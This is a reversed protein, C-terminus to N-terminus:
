LQAIAKEIRKKMCEQGIIHIVSWLDPSVESGTLVIRLIGAAHSVSGPFADPNAKYAKMDSTFGLSEAVAKVKSFWQSSDDSYDFTELYKTLIAKVTGNDCSFKYEPKFTEDFYFHFSDMIQKACAFDKRRRKAGVGMGLEVIKRIKGSDGFYVDLLEPRYNETWNRLFEIVEEPELRSFENKCINLLKDMDFLAGSQSMKEVKYPFEEIPKDPYKDHWEEFNSNLLTLLYVKMCYPHYGDQRYFDLSLEPDKRKSLKRKSGGDMKMLHATHAYRPMKFGLLHFLEWHIPVSSLWEEGRIVLTTGMLHDDVAHAFHYTPIGDSKLIVIDQINEPFTIEGKITDRFKIEGSESGQSRLRIVYPVGAAIKAEIEEYTLGRCKAWKGYYGPLANEATQAARVGNLEDETCFCPYALGKGVLDKVYVHYIDARQRQYYPGYSGTDNGNLGAGEDFEIGFYRLVNIITEVAGDVRRKEDTDEIRLYFVGGSLHAIREDALASYLNGLHIFGTPSPAMRTVQAKPPLERVPFRKEVDEPKDKVDPFLLGALKLNDM